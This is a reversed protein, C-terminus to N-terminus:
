RSAASAREGRTLAVLASIADAMSVALLEAVEHELRRPDRHRRIREIMAEVRDFKVALRGLPEYGVALWWDRPLAGLPHAPRPEPPPIWPDRGEWLCWLASAIEPPGPRTLFARRRGIAIGRRAVAEAEAGDLAPQDSARASGLGLEVQRTVARAPPTLLAGAERSPAGLENVWSVLRKRLRDRVAEAVPTPLLDFPMPAVAPELRAPGRVVRALVEGAWRIRADFGIVLADDDAAAIREGRAQVLPALQREVAGSLRGSGPAPAWSLGVLRGVPEGGIKVIGADIEAPADGSVVRMTRRDVFRATLREHLADSLRDEIEHTREQWERPHQLWRRQHAVFTWTRIWAIRTTLTEIDGETRDLRDVRAALWDEPLVGTGHLRHFAIERLLDVHSDTLTKRFDPIGCVEWLVELAEPSRARAAVDPDALLAHLAREDEDDHVPILFPAPSPRALSAVLRRASRFDLDSNRWFVHTVPPFQHTEIAEIAGEPLQGAERTLGFTGDTRFRGARGAIQALEAAALDRTRSGDFKRLATFAVHLVDMNLGMGIADTAVLHNVEGAQYMAVQANRTRPSLAGLVVAAGGHAARIREAIAYIQEVSFAVIASRKPVSTLKEVGSYRLTSFRECREIRVGPVLKPLLEAMTDSGLFMTENVGRAHLLRDTFVRGRARDGALQIEDIALFAVPRDVPMAEVTCVFYRPDSPIRKEEGTVLAVASEGRAAVVRDYVERALLRLPLGIMGSPQELMAQIARWTKGTNTPGLFATLRPDSLLRPVGRGYCQTAQRRGSTPARRSTDVKSSSVVFSIAMIPLM